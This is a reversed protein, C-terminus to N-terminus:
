TFHSMFHTFSFWILFKSAVMNYKIHDLEALNNSSSLYDYSSCSIFLHNAIKEEFILQLLFHLSVAVLLVSSSLILYIYFYLFLSVHSIVTYFVV